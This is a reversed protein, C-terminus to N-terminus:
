NPERDGYSVRAEREAKRLATLCERYTPYANPFGKAEYLGDQRQSIRDDRFRNIDFTPM